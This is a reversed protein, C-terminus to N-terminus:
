DIKPPSTNPITLMTPLKPVTNQSWAYQCDETAALGSWTFKVPHGMIKALYTKVLSIPCEVTAVQFVSNHQNVGSRFHACVKATIPAIIDNIAHRLINVFDQESRATTKILKGENRSFFVSM